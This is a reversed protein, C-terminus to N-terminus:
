RRLVNDRAQARFAGQAIQRFEIRQDTELALNGGASNSSFRSRGSFQGAM